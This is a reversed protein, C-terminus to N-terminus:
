EAHATQDGEPLGDQSPGHDRLVRGFRFTEIRNLDDFFQEEIFPEVTYKWVMEFKGTKLDSIGEKIFHSHGLQLHPGGLAETLQKNVEAVLKGVWPSERKKDLWRELLGEVLGHHPFFPVFHFRRRLAADVLAISRDATNMTGILWLNKPLQFPEDPRYLPLVTEKRYELLFLLEGLVRPLNARNIEDIIMIHLKEPDEAARGAITRLPGSTLRYTMSGDGSTYPRYGEFFDEYSMSPHFQVFARQGSNPALYEALKKALYTKGTGPPGYFVVQGKDNLLKEIEDLFDREILLEEALNDLPVALGGPGTEGGGNPPKPNETWDFAAYQETLEALCDRLKLATETVVARLDAPLHSKSWYRGYMVQDPRWGFEHDTELKSNRTSIVECGEVKWQRMLGVAHGVWGARGLGSGVGISLGDRDVGIRLNPTTKGTGFRVYMDSRPRGQAWELPLGSHVFDMGLLEELEQKLVEGWYSAIGQLVRANQRIDDVRNEDFRWGFESREVVPEVLLVKERAWWEAVREYRTLDGDLERVSQVYLAYREPPHKPFAQGTFIECFRLASPWAVPHSPDALRWFFSLCLPVNGPAPHPGVKISKVFEALHEIKQVAEADSPPPSLTESLIQAALLHDPAYKPIQNILMQGSVGGFIPKMEASASWRQTESQFRGLDLTRQFDGLIELGEPAHTQITEQWGVKDNANEFLRQWHHM